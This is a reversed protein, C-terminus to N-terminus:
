HKPRITTGNIGAVSAKPGGIQSPGVNRHALGTGSVGGRNAMAPAVTPNPGPARHNVAAEARVVHSGVSGPAATVGGPSGHPVAFVGPHLNDHREVSQHPPVPIGIANRLPPSPPRPASLLRPHLNRTTVSENTGKDQGIKNSKRDLRRSPAINVDVAASDKAGLGSPSADKATENSGPPAGDHIKGDDGRPAHADRATGGAGADTGMPARAGSSEGSPTSAHGDGHAGSAADEASAPWAALGCVLVMALLGFGIKLRRAQMPMVM